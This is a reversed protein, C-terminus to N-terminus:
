SVMTYFTPFLQGFQYELIVCLVKDLRNKEIIGRLLLYAREKFDQYPKVYKGLVRVCVVTDHDDVMDTLLWELAAESNKDESIGVLITKSHRQARFNDHRASLTIGSVRNIDHSTTDFSVHQRFKPGILPSKILTEPEPTPYIPLSSPSPIDRFGLVEQKQQLYKLIYDEEETPLDKSLSIHDWTISPGTEDVDLPSELDSVEENDDCGESQRSDEDVSRRSNCSPQISTDASSGQSINDTGGHNHISMIRTTLFTLAQLHSAIHRAVAEVPIRTKRELTNHEAVGSEINVGIAQTGQATQASDSGTMTHQYSPHASEQRQKRKDASEEPSETCINLCCIPCEGHKRRMQIRSQGAITRVEADGLALKHFDRIHTTTEDPDDFAASVGPCFPCTWFLPLHVERHWNLGHKALM